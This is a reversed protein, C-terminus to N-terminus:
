EVLNRAIGGTSTPGPKAPLSVHPRPMPPAAAPDPTSNGGREPAALAPRPSSKAIYTRVSDGSVSIGANQLLQAIQTWTLGKQRAAEIEARCGLIAARKSPTPEVHAEALVKRIESMMETLTRRDGSEKKEPNTM